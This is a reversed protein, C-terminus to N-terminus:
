LNILSMGLAINVSGVFEPFIGKAKLNSLFFFMIIVIDNDEWHYSPFLRIMCFVPNSTTLM